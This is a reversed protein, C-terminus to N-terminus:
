KAEWSALEEPDHEGRPDVVLLRLTSGPELGAPLEGEISLMMDGSGRLASSPLPVPLRDDRRTEIQYLKVQHHAQRSYQARETVVAFVRLAVLPVRKSACNDLQGLPCSDGSVDTTEM